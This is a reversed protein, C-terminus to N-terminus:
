FGDTWLGSFKTLFLRCIDVFILVCCSVVLAFVDFNLKFHQM